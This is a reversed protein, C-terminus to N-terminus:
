QAYPTGDNVMKALVAAERYGHVREGTDLYILPTGRLGVEQAVQMHSEIPNSCSMEQIQGGAKAVTMASQPDDACWVSELAKHGDSNLGARPFMLYRVRVGAELLTDIDQHLLRCYHCSIDTFVTISRDSAEEPEYILMDKEDMSALLDMHLTGLRTETLNEQTELNIMNGTFLINVSQDIYYIQGETVVEYVGAIPTASISDIPMHPIETRLTEAFQQLPDNTSADDAETVAPKAADDAMSELKEAANEAAKKHLEGTELETTPTGMGTAAADAVKPQDEACAAQSVVLAIVSLNLTFKNM